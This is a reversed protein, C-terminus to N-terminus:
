RSNKKSRRSNRWKKGWSLRRWSRTLVASPWTLQVPWPEIRMWDQGEHLVCGIILYLMYYFSPDPSSLAMYAPSALARYANLRSRWTVCLWYNFVAHLLLKKITPRSKVYFTCLTSNPIDFVFVLKQCKNIKNPYPATPVGWDCNSPAENSRFGARGSMWM